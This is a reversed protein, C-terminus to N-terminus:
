VDATASPSSPRKRLSRSGQILSLILAGKFLLLLPSEGFCEMVDSAAFLLFSVLQLWGTLDQQFRFFVVFGIVIWAVAEFLNFGIYLAAFWGPELTSPDILPYHLVEYM